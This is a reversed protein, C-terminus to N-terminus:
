PVPLSVNMSVEAEIHVFLHYSFRLYYIEEDSVQNTPTILYIADLSPLPERMKTLDEVLTIGEAMIEHM